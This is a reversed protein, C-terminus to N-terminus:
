ELRKIFRDNETDRCKPVWINLYLCGESMPFIFEPDHYFERYNKVTFPSGAATSEGGADICIGM